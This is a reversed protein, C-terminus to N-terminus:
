AITATNETSKSFMGKAAKALNKLADLAKSVVSGILNRISQLPHKDGREKIEELKKKMKIDYDSALAKDTDDSNLIMNNIATNGDSLKDTLKTINQETNSTVPESLATNIQSATDLNREFQANLMSHKVNDNSSVFEKLANDAQESISKKFLTRAQRFTDPISSFLPIRMKNATSPRTNPGSSTSKEVSAKGAQDSKQGPEAPASPPHNLKAKAEIERAKAYGHKKNPFAEVLAMKATETRFQLDSLLKYDDINAHKIYNEDCFGGQMKNFEVVMDYLELQNNLHLSTGDELEVTFGMGQNTNQEMSEKDNPNFRGFVKKAAQLALEDGSKERIYGPIDHFRNYLRNLEIHAEEYTAELHETSQM